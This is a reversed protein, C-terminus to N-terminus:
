INYIEEWSPLCIKAKFGLMLTNTVNFDGITMDIAHCVHTQMTGSIKSLLPRTCLQVCNSLLQQLLIHRHNSITIVRSICCIPIQLCAQQQVAQLGATDCPIM